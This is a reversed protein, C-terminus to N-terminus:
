VFPSTVLELLLDSKISLNSFINNNYNFHSQAKVKKGFCIIGMRCNLPSDQNGM